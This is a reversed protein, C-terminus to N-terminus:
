RGRSLLRDGGGVCVERRLETLGQGERQLWAGVKFRARCPCADVDRSIVLQLVTLALTFCFLQQLYMAAEGALRTSIMSTCAIDHPETFACALLDIVNDCKM